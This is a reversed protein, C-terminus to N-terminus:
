KSFPLTVTFVSGRGEKSEVSIDGGHAKVITAVISLGIGSGGSSRGRSVDSRYLRKFIYPLDQESIGIGTDAICIKYEEDNINLTLTISGQDTYKVANSLLNVFVQMIRNYDAHIPAELIDLTFDIGKEQALPRFQGASQVLLKKLDFDTKQLNLNDREIISLVGFDEILKNLRNLEENCGQM